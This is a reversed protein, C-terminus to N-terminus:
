IYKPMYMSCQVFYMIECWCIWWIRGHVRSFFFFFFPSFNKIFLISRVMPQQKTSATSQRILLLIQFFGNWLEVGVYYKISLNGCRNCQIHQTIKKMWENEDGMKKKHTWRQNPARCARWCNEIWLNFNYSSKYDCDTEIIASFCKMKMHIQIPVSQSFFFYVFRVCVFISDNKKKPSHFPCFWIFGSYMCNFSVAIFSHIFCISFSFSENQIICSTIANIEYM